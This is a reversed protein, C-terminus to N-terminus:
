RWEVTFTAVQKLTRSDMTTIKDVYRIANDPSRTFHAREGGVSNNIVTEYQSITLEIPTFTKFVIWGTSKKIYCVVDCTINKVKTGMIKIDNQKMRYVRKM